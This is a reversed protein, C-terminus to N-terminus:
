QQTDTNHNMVASMMFIFDAHQQPDSLIDEGTECLTYGYGRLYSIAKSNRGMLYHLHNEMVNAYEHNTIVYDVFAIQLMNQMIREQQGQYEPGSIMYGQEHSSHAIQEARDMHVEMLDTCLEMDVKNETSLYAVDALIRMGDAYDTLHEGLYLLIKDHYKKNGTNRYLQSEALYMRQESYTKTQKQQEMWFAQADRLCQAAFSKDYVTYIGSFQAQVMALEPSIDETKEALGALQARAFDLIDPIGNGDGDGAYMLPYLEYSTLLAALVYCRQGSQWERHGSLLEQCASEFVTGYLDTRIEFPYSRGIGATEIYYAGETDFETFVGQSVMTGASSDYGKKVITGEYVIERSKADVLRFTEELNEGEFIAVKRCGQQYGAQNVMIHVLSAPIEYDMKAAEGWSVIGAVDSYGTNFEFFSASDRCGGISGTLLASALLLAAAKRKNM